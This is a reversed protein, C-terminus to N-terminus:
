RPKISENIVQAGFENCLMAVKEDQQIFKHAHALRMNNIAQQVAYPTDSVEGTSIELSVDQQLVNALAETLSERTSPSMLHAKDEALVLSVKDGNKQYMSHIAVQKTLGPLNMEDILQSWTDLQKAYEVKKGDSLRHPIDFDVDVAVSSGAESEVVGNIDSISNEDDAKDSDEEDSLVTLTPDNPAIELAEISTATASETSTPEHTVDANFPVEDVSLKKKDAETPQNFDSVFMSSAQGDDLDFPPLDDDDDISANEFQSQALSGQESQNEPTQQETSKRAFLREAPNDFLSEEKDETKNDAAVVDNIQTRLALLEETKLFSSTSTGNESESEAPLSTTSDTAMQEEHYQPASYSTSEFHQSYQASDLHVFEEDTMPELPMDMESYEYSINNDYSTHEQPQEVQEVVPTDDSQASVVQESVDSTTQEDETSQTQQTAQEQQTVLEAQISQEQKEDALVSENTETSAIASTGFENERIVSAEALLSEQESQLSEVLQAEDESEVEESEVEEAGDSEEDFLGFNLSTDMEPEDHQADVQDDLLSGGQSHYEPQVQTTAEPEISQSADAALETGDVSDAQQPENSESIVPEVASTEPASDYKPVDASVESNENLAPPPTSSPTPTQSSFAKAQELLQQAVNEVLSMSSRAGALDAMEAEVANLETTDLKDNEPVFALMRLLTMELGVRGDIAHPMDKRGQLAIQYLLQVNEPTINKALVFVAKASHTELKCADPVFQTLAVQHLYSMLESLVQAYDPSQLSLSEVLGLVTHKDKKIIANLLKLVVNRDLLGLMDAVVQATVQGNGQAIAQDTLSLSDRMSGQAARAIEQLGSDEAPINEAQLIHQLQHFIQERTLSKLSFQLCRSLITVPLKQPDTTALLFKVHPPPEELTKLLANFSHKSLMHVEDILYVKYQGRTPKYQVNDLLERTDEVKTRSAADIELLDVYNGQEIEKCTPCQGCPNSGMGQECNLSKAFIRAITTKGVGRTGTFLYAHHLRNNDLASSIAAIVHEQGVLESFKRPRWKRALVQYGM